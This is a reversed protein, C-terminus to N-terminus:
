YANQKRLAHVDFDLEALVDAIRCGAKGDGYPHTMERCDLRPAALADAIAERITQYNWGPVDCVNGPMERGAQRAGINVCRLPIAAAEILGASSNGVLLTARRLLGIFRERPLHEIARCGSSKIASVIGDRGPDHNPHMILLPAIKSAIEILQAARDQEVEDSDGVPHLMMIFQPSGMAAFSSDDLPPIVELGDIAPSGVIHVRQPHEGMAIIRLASNRTAPLHIHALKTIAHRMAEDAIGEARDGGHIHAVRVGAVSAAIAAAFAEIRDGLVVVVDPTERALFDAM